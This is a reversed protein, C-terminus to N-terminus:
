DLRHTAGLMVNDALANADFQTAQEYLFQLAQECHWQQSCGHGKVVLGKVGLLLAGHTQSQYWHQLQDAQTNTSSRNLVKLARTWWARALCARALCARALCTRASWSPQPPKATLSLLLSTIGEASKLVTNGLLGSCVVIDLKAKWLTNPECFGVYADAYQEKFLQAALRVEEPGKNDEEGMNLLAMRHITHGQMQRWGVGLAAFQSLQDVTAHITAGLDLLMTEGNQAPLYTALAPLDIGPLLTLYHRSLAVLAGTNGLSFMGHVQQQHQSLMAQAMTSDRRRRLVSLPTDNGDVVSSCVHIDVRDSVDALLHNATDVNDSDVFIHLALDHYRSLLTHCASLVLHPGLDGGMVDIGLKIM